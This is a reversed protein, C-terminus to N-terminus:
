LLKVNSSLFKIKLCTTMKAFICAWTCKGHEFCKGRIYCFKRLDVSRPCNCYQPNLPCRRRKNETSRPKTKEAYARSRQRNAMYGSRIMMPSNEEYNVENELMEDLAPCHTQCFQPKQDDPIQSCQTQLEICEIGGENMTYANLNFSNRPITPCQDTCTLEVMITRSDITDFGFIEYKRQGSLDAVVEMTSVDTFKLHYASDLEVDRMMVYMRKMLENNDLTFNLIWCRSNGVQQPYQVQGDSVVECDSYYNLKFSTEPVNKAMIIIERVKDGIIDFNKVASGGVYNNLAMTGDERIMLVKVKSTPEFDQFVLMISHFTQTPRVFWTMDAGPHFQSSVGSMVISDRSGDCISFPHCEATCKRVMLIVSILLFAAFKNM